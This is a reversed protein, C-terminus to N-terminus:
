ECVGEVVGFGVLYGFFDYGDLGGDFFEINVM